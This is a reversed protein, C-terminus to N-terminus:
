GDGVCCSAIRTGSSAPIYEAEVREALEPAM